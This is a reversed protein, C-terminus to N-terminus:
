RVLGNVTLNKVGSKNDKLYQHQYNYFSLDHDAPEISQQQFLKIWQDKTTRSLPIKYADRVMRMSKSGTTTQSTRTVLRPMGMGTLTLNM